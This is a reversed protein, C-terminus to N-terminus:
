KMSSSCMEGFLRTFTSWCYPNKKIIKGSPFTKKQVIELEVWVLRAEVPGLVEDRLERCFISDLIFFM